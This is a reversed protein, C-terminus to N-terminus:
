LCIIKGCSMAPPLMKLDALPLRTRSSRAASVLADQADPGARLLDAVDSPLERDAHSLDVVESGERIGLRAGGGGQPDYRVVRMPENWEGYATGFYRYKITILKKISLRTGNLCSAM